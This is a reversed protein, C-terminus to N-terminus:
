EQLGELSDASMGLIEYAANPLRWAAGAGHLGYREMIEHFEESTIEKDQGFDRWLNGDIHHYNVAYWNEERTFEAIIVSKVGTLEGDVLDLPTYTTVLMDCIGDATIKVLRGSPTAGLSWLDVEQLQNDHMFFLRQEFNPRTSISGWHSPRPPRDGDFFWRSALVGLTGRGDIDVWAAHYSYPMDRFSGGSTTLNVFFESLAVAFPHPNSPPAAAQGDPLRTPPPVQPPVNQLPSLDMGAHYSLHVSSLNPLNALPSIDT